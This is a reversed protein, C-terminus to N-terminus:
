IGKQYRSVEELRLRALLYSISSEGGQNRNVFDVSLGDYCGGTEENYMVVKRSNGGLFWEFVKHALDLYCRDKTAYYADIAADVMAAAELPQQDYFARDGGRKFWGDNGIPVFVGEVIQTKSLFDMAEQAVELFKPKRVLSYAVFLAQPLRANDYTLNPEFWHWDDKTQDMFDQVLSDGLRETSVKLSDDPIAQYYENLGILAESRFRLSTSKWVWPLGREFIDKAVLRMGNPLSSNIACGCAWLTRGASDPSGDVDLYTRGYSLYNHFNGDPKQM